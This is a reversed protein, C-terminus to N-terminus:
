PKDLDDDAFIGLARDFGNCIWKNWPWHVKHSFSDLWYWFKYKM